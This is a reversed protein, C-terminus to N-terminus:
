EAAIGEVQGPDLRALMPKGMMAVGDVEAIVQGKDLRVFRAFQGALQGYLLDAGIIRLKDGRSFKAVKQGSQLREIGRQCEMEARQAFGQFDGWTRPLIDLQHRPAQLVRGEHDRLIFGKARHIMGSWIDLPLALFIFNPLFPAYDYGMPHKPATFMKRPVVALGGSNSAACIDNIADATAFEAHTRTTALIYLLSM